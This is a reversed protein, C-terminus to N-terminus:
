LRLHHVVLAIQGAVVIAAAAERTEWRARERLGGQRAMRRHHAAFVMQGAVVVVASESDGAVAAVEVEVDEAVTVIEAAVCRIAAQRAVLVLAASAQCTTVQMRCCAHFRRAHHFVLLVAETWRGARAQHSAAEAKM